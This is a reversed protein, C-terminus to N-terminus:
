LTALLDEYERLKGTLNGIIIADTEAEPIKGAKTSDKFTEVDLQHWKELIKEIEQRLLQVKSELLDRALQYPMVVQRPENTNAM